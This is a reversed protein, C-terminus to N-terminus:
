MKLKYCTHLRSQNAPNSSNAFLGIDPISISQGIIQSLKYFNTDFMNSSFPPQNKESPFTGM